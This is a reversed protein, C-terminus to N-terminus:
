QGSRTSNESWYHLHSSLFLSRYLCLLRLLSHTIFGTDSLGAFFLCGLNKTPKLTIEGSSNNVIKSAFDRKDIQVSIKKGQEPGSRLRPIERSKGFVAHFPTKNLSMWSRLM